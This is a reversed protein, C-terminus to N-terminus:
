PIPRGHYSDYATRDVPWHGAEIAILIDGVKLSKYPRHRLRWERFFFPDWGESPSYEPLNIKFEVNFEKGVWVLFEYLDTGSLRLDYYIETDDTIPMKSAYASRQKLLNFIKERTTDRGM